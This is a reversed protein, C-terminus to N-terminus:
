IVRAQSQRPLRFTTANRAFSVSFIEHNQLLKELTLRTMSLHHSSLLTESARLYRPSPHERPFTM